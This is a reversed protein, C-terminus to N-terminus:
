LVCLLLTSGVPVRTGTRARSCLTRPMLLSSGWLGTSLGKPKPDPLGLGLRGTLHAKPKRHLCLM